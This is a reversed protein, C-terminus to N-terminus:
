GLFAGRKTSEQYDSLQFVVQMERLHVTIRCNDTVQLTGHDVERM